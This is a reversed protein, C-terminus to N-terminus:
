VNFLIISLTNSIISLFSFIKLDVTRTYWICTFFVLKRLQITLKKEEENKKKKITKIRLENIKIRSDYEKSRKNIKISQHKISYEVSEKRLNLYGKEIGLKAAM